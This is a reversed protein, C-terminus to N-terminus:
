PTTDMIFMAEPIRIDPLFSDGQVIHIQPIPYAVGYAYRFMGYVPSSLLAKVAATFDGGQSLWGFEKPVPMSGEVINYFDPTIDPLFTIQDAPFVATMVGAASEFYADQAMVWKLNLTGDKIQANNVFYQNYEPNRALYQQFSVNNSLYGQINKGCIAIKPKRGTTYMADTLFNTLYTPIDFATNAWSTSSTVRNANPLGYDVTVEAGSSTTLLNGNIDYWVKGNAMAVHVTSTRLNDSRVAFDIARRDLEHTALQVAQYSSYDQFLQLVEPGATISEISHLLQVDQIGAGTQEVELPPSGYRAFKATKRSGRFIARRFSQGLNQVTRTYLDMPLVKPLMTMYKVVPETMTVYNLLAMIGVNDSAM